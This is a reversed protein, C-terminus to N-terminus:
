RQKSRAGSSKTVSAKLAELLDTTTEKPEEEKVIHLRGQSKAKILKELENAYADSYDSIDFRDSGLQEVLIKGLALEQEELKVKNTASASIEKIEDMPRIEDLYHLVHMVIGRQFARLAVLQERERLVVKGIAVKDTNKLINVLLLYAKDPTKSDPAVYYSKQVFIPDLEKADVFEKIDITKTTKLKINELEQKEILAYNDKAIEYGKQIQQYPVEIDEVPCWRKYQIRHGNQCLQNFSFTREEAASYLKIPINVLGFSISGKWTSRAAM